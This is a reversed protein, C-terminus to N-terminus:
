DLATKPIAFYRFAELDNDTDYRKFGVVLLDGRETTVVATKTGNPNLKSYVKQGRILEPEIGSTLRKYQATLEGLKGRQVRARNTDPDVVYVQLSELTNPDPDSVVPPEPDRTCSYLIIGLFLFLGLGLLIKVPRSRPSKTPM